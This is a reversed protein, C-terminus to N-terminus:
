QTLKKKRGLFLWSKSKNILDITERDEVENNEAEIKIREKKM